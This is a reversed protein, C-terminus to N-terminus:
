AILIHNIIESETKLAKRIDEETILPKSERNYSEVMERLLNCLHPNNFVVTTARESFEDHQDEVLCLSNNFEHIIFHFDKRKKLQFLRIKDRQKYTLYLNIFFNSDIISDKNKDFFDPCSINPGAYCEICDISSLGKGIILDFYYDELKKYAIHNLEGAIIYVKGKRSKGEFAEREFYELLYSILFTTSIRSDHSIRIGCSEKSDLCINNFIPNDKNKNFENNSLLEQQIEEILNKYPLVKSHIFANYEDKSFENRSRHLKRINEPSYIYPAVSHKLLDNGYMEILSDIEWKALNNIQRFYEM